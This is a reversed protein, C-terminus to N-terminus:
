DRRLVISVRKQHSGVFDPYVGYFDGPSPPGIKGKSNLEVEVKLPARPRLTPILLDDTGLTYVVPFQPNVIRKVAIPVGGSDKLLIFLSEESREVRAISEGELTISGSIALSRRFKQCSLAFLCFLVCFFARWRRNFIM